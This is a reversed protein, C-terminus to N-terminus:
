KREEALRKKAEEVTEGEHTLFKGVFGDEVRQYAGVVSDEVKRYGGVVANEIKKYANVVGKEIAQEGSIAADCVKEGLEGAKELMHQQGEAKTEMALKELDSM